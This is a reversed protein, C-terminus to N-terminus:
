RKEGRLRETRGKAIWAVLSVIISALVMAAITLQLSSPQAFHAPFFKPLVLYTILAATLSTAASKALVSTISGRERKVVVITEGASPPPHEPRKLGLKRAIKYLTIFSATFVLLPILLPTKIPSYTDIWAIIWAAAGSLWSTIWGRIDITPIRITPGSPQTINVFSYRLLDLQRMIQQVMGTLQSVSTEAERSAGSFDVDVREAPFPIHMLQLNPDEELAYNEVLGGDVYVYQPSKGFGGYYFYVEDGRNKGQIVVLTKTSEGWIWTYVESGSSSKLYWEIDSDGLLWVDPVTFNYRYNPTTPNWTQNTRLDIWIGRWKVRYIRHTINYHIWGTLEGPELQITSGNWANQILILSISDEIDDDGDADLIKKGVYQKVYEQYTFQYTGGATVTYSEGGSIWKHNSSSGSSLSSITITSKYDVWEALDRGTYLGTLTLSGNFQQGTANFYNSSSTSSFNQHAKVLHWTVRYQEYYTASSASPSDIGELTVPGPTAWRHVSTSASTTTSWYVNGGRDAWVYPTTDNIWVRATFNSGYSTYTIVAYNDSTLSQSYPKSIQPQLTIKLHDWYYFTHSTDTVTWSTDVIDWIENENSGTSTSDITLTSGADLWKSISNGEYLPSFTVQTSGNVTGTATFYNSSDTPIFDPDAKTVSVTTNYQGWYYLIRTADETFTENFTSNMIWRHTSNSLHSLQEVYVWTDKDIILTNSGNVLQATHQADCCTYTAQFYDEDQLPSCTKNALILTIQVPTYEIYLQPVKDGHEKSYFYARSYKSSSYDETKYKIVWGYNPYENNVIGQVDSTVTWNIWCYHDPMQITDTASSAFSPQNSWTITDESWSGTVRHVDVYKGAPDPNTNSYPYYYHYYLMLKALHITSGRPISSLDFRIYIRENKDTEDLITLDESTGYNDGSRYSDVYSDDTPPSITTSPDGADVSSAYIKLVYTGKEPNYYREWYQGREILKLKSKSSQASVPSITVYGTIMSLILLTILLLTTKTKM